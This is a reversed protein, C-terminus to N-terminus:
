RASCIWANLALASWDTKLSSAAEAKAVSGDQRQVVASVISPTHNINEARSEDDHASMEAINSSSASGRITPFM